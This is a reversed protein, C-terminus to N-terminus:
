KKKSPVVAGERKRRGDSTSLYKKKERGTDLAGSRGDARVEELSVPKGSTVVHYGWFPRRKRDLKEDPGEKPILDSEIPHSPYKKECGRKAQVAHSVQKLQRKASYNRQTM